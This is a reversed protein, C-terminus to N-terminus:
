REIINVTQGGCESSSVGTTLEMFKFYDRSLFGDSDDVHDVSLDRALYHFSGIRRYQDLATNTKEVVLGFM